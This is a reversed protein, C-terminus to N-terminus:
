LWMLSYLRKYSFPGLLGDWARAQRLAYRKRTGAVVRTVRNGWLAPVRPKANEM